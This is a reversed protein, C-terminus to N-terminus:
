KFATRAVECRARTSNGMFQQLRRFTSEYASLYHCITASVIDAVKPDSSSSLKEVLAFIRKLAEDDGADLKKAIYSNLIDGYVVHPGPREDGWWALMERYAASLEPLTSVLLDSVSEYTIREAPAKQM